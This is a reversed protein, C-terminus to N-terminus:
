LLSIKIPAYSLTPSLCAEYNHNFLFTIEIVNSKSRSHNSCVCLHTLLTRLCIINNQLVKEMNNNSIVRVFNHLQTHHDPTRMTNTMHYIQVRYSVTAFQIVSLGGASSTLTHSRSAPVTNDTKVGSELIWHTDTTLSSCHVRRKPKLSMEVRIRMVRLLCPTM